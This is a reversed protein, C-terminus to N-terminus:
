RRSTAHNQAATLNFKRLLARHQSTCCCLTLPVDFHCARPGRQSSLTSAGVNSAECASGVLKHKWAPVTSAELAGRHQSIFQTQAIRLWVSRTRDFLLASFCKSDQRSDCRGQVQDSRRDEVSFLQNKKKMMLTRWTAWGM